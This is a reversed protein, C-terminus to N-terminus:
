LLYFLKKAKRSLTLDATALAIAPCPSLFLSASTRSRKERFSTKGSERMMEGMDSVFSFSFFLILIM